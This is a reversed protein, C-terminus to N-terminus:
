GFESHNARNKQKFSVLKKTEDKVSNIDNNVKITALPQSLQEHRGSLAAHCSDSTVWRIMKM